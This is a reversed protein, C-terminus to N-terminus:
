AGASRCAGVLKKRSSRSGCLPRASAPSPRAQGDSKLAVRLEEEGDREGQGDEGDFARRLERQRPEGDGDRDGEDPQLGEQGGPSGRRRPQGPTRSARDSANTPTALTQSSGVPVHGRMASAIGTTASAADCPPATAIRSRRDGPHREHEQREAQRRRGRHAPLPHEGSAIAATTTAIPLRRTTALRSRDELRSRRALWRSRRCARWSAATSDTPRRSARSPGVGAASSLTM